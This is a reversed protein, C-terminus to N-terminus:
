RAWIFTAMPHDGMKTIEASVTPGPTNYTATAKNDAGSVEFTYSIDSSADTPKYVISGAFPAPCFAEFYGDTNGQIVDPLGKVWTANPPLLRHFVLKLTFSMKNKIRGRVSYGGHIPENM